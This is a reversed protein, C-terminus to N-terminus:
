VTEQIILLSPWYVASLSCTNEALIVAYTPVVSVGEFCLFIPTFHPRHPLVAFASHDMSFYQSINHFTWRYKNPKSNNKETDIEIAANFNPSKKGNRQNIVRICENINILKIATQLGFDHPMLIEPSKHGHARNYEGICFGPIELLTM